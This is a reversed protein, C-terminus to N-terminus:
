VPGRDDGPHVWVRRDNAVAGAHLARGSGDRPAPGAIPRARACSRAAHARALTRTRPRFRGRGPRWGRSAAGAARRVESSSFMLVHQMAVIFEDGGMASEKAIAARDVEKKVELFGATLASLRGASKKQVASLRKIPESWTEADSLAPPLAALPSPLVSRRRLVADRSRAIRMAHDMVFCGGATHDLMWAMCSAYVLEPVDRQVPHGYMTQLLNSNRGSQVSSFAVDERLIRYLDGAIAGNQSVADRTKAAIEHMPTVLDDCSILELSAAGECVNAVALLAADIDAVQQPQERCFASPARSLRPSEAAGAAGSGGVFDASDFEPENSGEGVDGGAGCEFLDGELEVVRGKEKELEVTLKGV